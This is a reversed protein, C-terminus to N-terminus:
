MEFVHSNGCLKCKDVHIATYSWDEYYQGSSIHPSQIEQRVREKKGTTKESIPCTFEIEIVHRITTCGRLM